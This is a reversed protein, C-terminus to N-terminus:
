ALPEEHSGTITGTDPDRDIVTRMPVHEVVQIADEDMIVRPAPVSVTVSPDPRAAVALALAGIAEAMPEPKREEARRAEAMRRRVTDASVHLVAAISEYGHPRGAAALGDRADLVEDVTVIQAPGARAPLRRPALAEFMSPFAAVVPHQASVETGVALTGLVEFPAGMPWFDQRVRYAAPAAPASSGPPQLQVSIMGTHILLSADGTMVYAVASDPTFGEKVLTALTMANKALIEAQDKVDSRLFAVGSDDYWLRSRPPVNVIRSFADAAEGWLPRLTADGVLRAAQTFSGGASLSSAPMGESLASVIPHMGTVAAIRTEAEGQLKTFDMQEFTLGVPVPEVGSGLYLTRFANLAGRHEQEFMEIWTLAEDKSMTPPFKLALNPTNHTVIYDDTVYLHDAVDVYICQALKRGAPEIAVIYRHRPSRRAPVRYTAVKRSLRCPMLWAPLRSINAVWQPRRHPEEPRAAAPTLTARGGLSRALEVIQRVLTESTNTFRVTSGTVHGDTDILGQLLAERDFISARLYPEPVAKEYGIVNWLGLSKALVVMPHSRIGRAGARLHYSYDKQHVVEVGAPVLARVSDVIEPDATSFTVTGNRFSGDGLLVGLLYPDMALPGPDAFTVPEPLPIAWRQPGSRYTPGKEMIQALSLSRTVGRKRDYASAVEWLHDATCETAAGDSFTVRYIDRKGQPYVGLVEHSQGDRGIVRDGVEVSGMTTWGGPTLVRADLPQPAAHEFFSLKHTTAANDGMVERLAATILSVGRNKALPNHAGVIHAVQNPLYTVAREGSTMGGPYYGFGIIRAQPDWAGLESARRPSGYAMTTWDPRIVDAQGGDTVVFGHGGLDADLRLKALMTRTGMDDNPRELVALEATGFLAGPKNGRVQQFAFRAESFLRARLALCAFVVGNRLYAGYVMGEFSGDSREQEQTMTTQLLSGLDNGGWLSAVWDLSSARPRPRATTFTEILAAM